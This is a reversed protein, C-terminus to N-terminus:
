ILLVDKVKLSIRFQTKQILYNSNETGEAIAGVLQEIADFGSFPSFDCPARFSKPKARPGWWIVLILYWLMFSIISVLTESLHRGFAISSSKHLSHLLLFLFCCYYNFIWICAKVGSSALLDRHHTHSLFGLSYIVLWCVSFSTVHSFCGQPPEKHIALIGKADNTWHQTM